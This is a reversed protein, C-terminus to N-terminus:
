PQPLPEGERALVTLPQIAAGRAVAEFLRRVEAGRLPLDALEDLSVWRAELSHEDPTGKPPTDDAPRAVFVARVRAAGPLPTHELRLLGELVVPVGTEELAERRAAEALTEGPEARGGPLYWLQGHSTEHVVLFRDARRVVVLSFFWTPIPERAM